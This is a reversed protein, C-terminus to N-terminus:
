NKQWLSFISLPLMRESNEQALVLEGVRATGEFDTMTDNLLNGLSLSSLETSYMNLIVFLPDNSLVQRCLALLEDLNEKVKWVQGQPGRGFSPPDMVIADYREGRTVERKIFKLADDLIWRIPADNLGSLSQNERAWAISTKSSDVHTVHAGAKAAALSALGTYGFLNLVKIERTQVSVIDHIFKWQGSQEPFIGIHKSGAAYVIKAKLGAIYLVAEASTKARKWEAEPLTKKWWARPEARSIVAEGIRELKQGNGSDLLSYGAENNAWVEIHPLKM